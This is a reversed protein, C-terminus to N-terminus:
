LCAFMPYFMVEKASIIVIATDECTPHPSVSSAALPLPSLAPGGLHIVPNATTSFLTQTPISRGSLPVLSPPLPPPCHGRRPHRFNCQAAVPHPGGSTPLDQEVSPSSEVGPKIGVYERCDSWIEFLIVYFSLRFNIEQHSNNIRTMANAKNV